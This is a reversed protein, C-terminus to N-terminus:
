DSSAPADGIETAVTGEVKVPPAQFLESGLTADFSIRVIDGRECGWEEVEIAGAAEDDDASSLENETPSDLVFLVAGSTEQEPLSTQASRELHEVRRVFSWYSEARDSGTPLEGGLVHLGQPGTLEDTAEGQTPGCWARVVGSFEVRSGDARTVRLVGARTQPGGADDDGSCAIAGAAIVGVVIAARWWMAPMM